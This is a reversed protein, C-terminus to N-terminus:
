NKTTNSLEELKQTKPYIKAFIPLKPCSHAFETAMQFPFIYFTMVKSSLKNSDQMYHSTPFGNSNGM